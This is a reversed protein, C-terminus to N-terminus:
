GAPQNWPGHQAITIVFPQLFEYAQPQNFRLNIILLNLFQEVPVVCKGQHTQITLGVGRRLDTVRFQSLANRFQELLQPNVLSAAPPQQQGFSGGALFNPAGGGTSGGPTISSSNSEIVNLAQVFNIKSIQNEGAITFFNFLTEVEQSM